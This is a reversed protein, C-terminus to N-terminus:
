LARCGALMTTTSTALGKGVPPCRLVRVKVDVGHECHFSRLLLKCVNRLKHYEPPFVDIKGRGRSISVEVETPLPFVAPVLVGRHDEILEGVKGPVEMYIPFQRGPIAQQSLHDDTENKFEYDQRPKTSM